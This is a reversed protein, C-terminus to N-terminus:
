RNPSAASERALLRGAQLDGHSAETATQAPTERAELLSAAAALAAKSLQVTDVAHDPTTPQTPKASPANRTPAVPPSQNTNSIASPL